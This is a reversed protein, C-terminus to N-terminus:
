RRQEDLEEVFKRKCDEMADPLCEASKGKLEEAFAILGGTSVRLAAQQFARTKGDVLSAMLALSEAMEKTKARALSISSPSSSSSASSSSPMREKAAFAREVTTSLSNWDEAEIQELMEDADRPSIFAKNQRGDDSPHHHQQQLNESKEVRSLLKEALKKEEEKVLSNVEEEKSNILTKLANGVRSNVPLVNM